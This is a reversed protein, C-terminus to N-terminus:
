LLFRCDVFSCCKRWAARWKVWTGTFWLRKSFLLLWVPLGQGVAVQKDHTQKAASKKEFNNDM